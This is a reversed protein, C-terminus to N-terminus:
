LFALGRKRVIKRWVIQSLQYEPSRKIGTSWLFKKWDKGAIAEQSMAIAKKLYARTIDNDFNYKKVWEALDKPKDEEAEQGEEDGKGKGKATQDASLPLFSSAYIEVGKGGGSAEGGNGGAKGGAEAGVTTETRRQLASAAVPPATGAPAAAKASAATAEAGGEPAVAFHEEGQQKVAANFFATCKDLDDASFSFGDLKGSIEADIMNEAKNFLDKGADLIGAQKASASVGGAESLYVELFTPLAPGYEKKRLPAKDRLKERFADVPAAFFVVAPFLKVCFVM